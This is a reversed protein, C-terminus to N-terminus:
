EELVCYGYLRLRDALSNFKEFHRKKWDLRFLDFFGPDINLKFRIIQEDADIFEYYPVNTNKVCKCVYNYNKDNCNVSNGLLDTIGDDVFLSENFLKSSVQLDIEQMVENDDIYLISRPTIESIDSFDFSKM